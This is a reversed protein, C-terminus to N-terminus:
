WDHGFLNLQTCEFPPNVKVDKNNFLPKTEAGEVPRVVEYGTYQEVKVNDGFKRRIRENRKDMDDKTFSIKRLSFFPTPFPYRVENVEFGYDYLYPNVLVDHQVVKGRMGHAMMNLACMKVSSIDLDDGRYYCDNFGHSAYHGLLTRGSGCGGCDAVIKDHETFMVKSLLEAVHSPTFFQGTSSAKHKSQYLEEYIGGFFDFFTGNDMAQAVKEFWINCIKFLHPCEVQKKQLHEVFDGKIYHSVDFLDILYDCLYNLGQIKDLRNEYVHKEILAIVEKM